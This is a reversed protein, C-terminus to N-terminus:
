KKQLPFNKFLKNMAKDFKKVNKDSGDALTYQATGRWVMEKNSNNVLDVVLTAQTEQYSQRYM